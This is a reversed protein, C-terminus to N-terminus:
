NTEDRAADLRDRVDGLEVGGWAELDYTVDLLEAARDTDESAVSRAADARLRKEAARGVAERDLTRTQVSLIHPLDEAGDPLTPFASPGPALLEEGDEREVTVLAFAEIAGEIADDPVTTDKRYALESLAEALEERTLAGFLDVVGALEDPTFM